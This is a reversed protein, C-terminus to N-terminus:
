GVALAVLLCRARSHSPHTLRRRGPEVNFPGCLPEDAYSQRDGFSLHYEPRHRDGPIHSNDDLNRSTRIKEGDHESRCTRTPKPASYQGGSLRRERFGRIAADGHRFLLFLARGAQFAEPDSPEGQWIDMFASATAPNEILLMNRDDINAMLAQYAAIELAQATLESQKAGNRTEVGAFVLSAIVAVFGTAEIKFGEPFRKSSM